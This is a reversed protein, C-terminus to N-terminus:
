KVKSLEPFEQVLDIKEQESLDKIFSSTFEADQALKRAVINCFWPVDNTDINFKQAAIKKVPKNKYFVNLYQNSSDALVSWNSSATKEVPKDSADYMAVLVDGDPTQKIQWLEDLNDSNIFRVTDWAVKKILHKVDALKYIKAQPKLKEDLLNYDIAFKNM